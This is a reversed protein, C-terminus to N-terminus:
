NRIKDIFIVLENIVLNHVYLGCVISRDETYIHMCYANNQNQCKLWQVLIFMDYFHNKKKKKTSLFNNSEYILVLCRTFVIDFELLNVYELFRWLFVNNNSEDIAPLFVIHM